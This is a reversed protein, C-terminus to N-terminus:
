QAPHDTNDVGGRTQYHRECLVIGTTPNKKHPVKWNPQSDCQGGEDPDECHASLLMSFFEAKTIDYLENFDNANM